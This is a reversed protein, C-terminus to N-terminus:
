KKSQGIYIMDLFDKVWTWLYKKGINEELLNITKYKVNLDVIWQTIKSYLIFYTDVYAKEMHIDLKEM